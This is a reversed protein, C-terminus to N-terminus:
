SVLEGEPIQGLATWRGLPMVVAVMTAIATAGLAVPNAHVLQSLLDHGGPLGLFPSLASLVIM